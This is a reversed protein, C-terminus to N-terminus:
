EDYRECILDITRDDMTGSGQHGLCATITLKRRRGM